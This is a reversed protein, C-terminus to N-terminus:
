SGLKLYDLLRDGSDARILTVIVVPLVAKGPYVLYRPEWRPHFKKKFAHLGEFNYFDELHCYLYRLLKEIRPSEKSNGVGSLASLGLNFYQYERKKFYNFISIFLYEMTGNELRKRRRMLDITIENSQYEPLINVFAIIEGTSTEVTVIKCERIYDEDFWGLSFRKESGHTIKLWEDSVEKLKKLLHHSIPPEYFRIEYGLKVM